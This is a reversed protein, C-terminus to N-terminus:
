HDRCTKEWAQKGEEMGLNMSIKFEECAETNKGLKHLAIGKHYHGSAHDPDILVTLTFDALAAEFNGNQYRAQGRALFFEPNQSELDIAYSYDEEAKEWNKLRAFVKARYFYSEPDGNDKQIAISFDEIAGLPDEHSMRFFGRQKYTQSAANSSSILKNLEELLLDDGGNKVSALGLKSPKHDPDIQLAIEYSEIAAMNEGLRALVKGREAYYDPEEPNTETALDLYSLALDYNQLEIACLGMHYYAMDPSFSQATTVSSVGEDGPAIRFLVRNTEGSPAFLFQEFDDLAEEYQKLLYRVRGREFLAEAYDSDITLLSNFDTLANEYVGLKEWAQGRIWFAQTDRPYKQLWTDLSRIASEFNEKEYAEIGADLQTQSQSFCVNISFFAFVFIWFRCM